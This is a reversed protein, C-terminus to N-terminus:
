DARRKMPQAAAYTLSRWLWEMPGFRYRDLWWPSIWLQLAWVAAVM